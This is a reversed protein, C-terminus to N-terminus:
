CKDHRRERQRMPMADIMAFVAELSPNRTILKVEGDKGLLVLEFDKGTVSFRQSLQRYDNSGALLDIHVLDRSNFECQNHEIQKTLLLRDPVSKGASFTVIVRHKGLYETLHQAFAPVCAALLAMAILFGHIM